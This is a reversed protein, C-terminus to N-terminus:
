PAPRRNVVLAAAERSTNPGADNWRIGARAESSTRGSLPLYGATVAVSWKRPAESGGWVRVTRAGSLGSRECVLPCRNAMGTAFERWLGGGFPRKGEDCGFPRVGGM